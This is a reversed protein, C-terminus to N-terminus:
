KYDMKEGGGGVEGSHGRRTKHNRKTEGDPACSRLEIKEIFDQGNSNLILGVLSM